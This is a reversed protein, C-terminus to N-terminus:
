GTCDCVWLTASSLQFLLRMWRWFDGTSSQSLGSVSDNTFLPTDFTACYYGAKYWTTKQHLCNCLPRECNHGRGYVCFVNRSTFLLSFISDRCTILRAQQRKGDKIISPCHTHRAVNYHCYHSIALYTNWHAKYDLVFTLIPVLNTGMRVNMLDEQCTKVIDCRGINKFSKKCSYRMWMLWWTTLIMDRCAQKSRLQLWIHVRKTVTTQSFARLRCYYVHVKLVHFLIMLINEIYYMETTKEMFYIFFMLVRHQKGNFDSSCTYQSSKIYFFYFAPHCILNSIRLSRARWWYFTKLYFSFSVICGIETLIHM